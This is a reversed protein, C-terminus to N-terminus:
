LPVTNNKKKWKLTNIYSENFLLLQVSLKFSLNAGFFSYESM